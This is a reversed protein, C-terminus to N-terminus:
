WHSHSRHFATRDIKKALFGNLPRRFKGKGRHRLASTREWRSFQSSAHGLHRFAACPKRLERWRSNSTRRNTIAPSRLYLSSRRPVQADRKRVVFTWRLRRSQLFSPRRKGHASSTLAPAALQRDRRQPMTRLYWLCDAQSCITREYSAVQVLTSKRPPDWTGLAQTWICERRRRRHPMEIQGVAVIGIPQRRQPKPFVSSPKKQGRGAAMATGRATRSTTPHRLWHLRGLQLHSQLYWICSLLAM